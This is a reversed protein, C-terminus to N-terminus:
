QVELVCGCDLWKEWKIAVVRTGATWLERATAEWCIEAEKRAEACYGTVRRFCLASAGFARGSDEM